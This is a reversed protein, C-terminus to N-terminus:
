PQLKAVAMRSLVQGQGDLVFVEAWQEKPSDNSLTLTFTITTRPSTCGTLQRNDDESTSTGSDVEQVSTRSDSNAAYTQLVVEVAGALNQCRLPVRIEWKKVGTKKVNLREAFVVIPPNGGPSAYPEPWRHEFEISAAIFARDLERDREEWCPHMALISPVSRDASQAHLLHHLAPVFDPHYGARAMLMLGELDAEMELQRCFKALDLSAAKPDKWGGSLLGPEGLVLDAGTGQRLSEEYLYRRAWDRRVVHSIEHSLVSAWLGATNDALDALGSEVFITGDPSSSANIQGDKVIRLQWSYGKAQSAQLQQVLKEFVRLGIAYRGTPASSQALLEPRLRAATKRDLSFKEPVELAALAQQADGVISSSLFLFVSFLALWRCGKIRV